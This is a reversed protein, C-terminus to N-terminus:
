KDKAFYQNIMALFKEKNIPKAMYNNCGAELAKERDGTLGFATLAVIIVDRNFGRILRTAELGNLEPMRVDMLILDINPNEKSIRVAESGTKVKIIEKAIPKLVISIFMESADDDEALLVTIKESIHSSDSENSPNPDINAHPQDNRCPITFYFTSGHGAKSEVWIKGGLLEVFAKSISLGLGAGEYNRTLSESGQRFREFVVNIKDADIGSGSDNVTFLIDNNRRECNVEIFGEQTFKIANKVLNTLIAILKEADTEVMYHGADINNKVIYRLGKKEIEPM